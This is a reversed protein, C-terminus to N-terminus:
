SESTAVSDSFDIYDQTSVCNQCVALEIEEDKQCSMLLYTATFSLFILTLLKTQKMTIM